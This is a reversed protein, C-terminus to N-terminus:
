LTIQKEIKQMIDPIESPQTCFYVVPDDNNMNTANARTLKLFTEKESSTIHEDYAIIIMKAIKKYRPQHHMENKYTRFFPLINPIFRDIIRKIASSYCGYHINSAIILYDSQVFSPNTQDVIDGQIMCKGPTKLWCGFCGICPKVAEKKVELLTHDSSTFTNKLATNIPLSLSSDNETEYIITTYM